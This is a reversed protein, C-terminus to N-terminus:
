LLEAAERIRQATLPLGNQELAMAFNEVPTEPRERRACMRRFAAIAILPELDWQNVIFRDPHVVEIGYAGVIAAPFDRVNATVICDAHGALAAALVHRPATLKGTALRPQTSPPTM